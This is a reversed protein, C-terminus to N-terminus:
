KKTNKAQEHIKAFEENFKDDREAITGLQQDVINTLQNDTSTTDYNAISEIQKAKEPDGKLPPTLEFIRFLEQLTYYVGGVQIVAKTLGVIRRTSYIKNLMWLKQRFTLEKLSKQYAKKLTARRVSRAFLSKNTAIDEIIEQETKSLAGGSLGKQFINNLQKRTYNQAPKSMKYIDGLPLVSFAAALAMGQYDGEQYYLGVDILDFGISIFPGFIPITLSAISLVALTTHPNRAVTMPDFLGGVGMLIQENQINISNKRYLEIIRKKETQDISFLSM